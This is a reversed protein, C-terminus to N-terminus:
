EWLSNWFRVLLNDKSLRFMVFWTLVSGVVLGAFMGPLMGEYFGLVGSFLAIYLARARAAELLITVFLLTLVNPLFGWTTMLVTYYDYRDQPGLGWMPGGFEGPSESTPVYVVAFTGNVYGNRTLWYFPDLLPNYTASFSITADAFELQDNPFFSLEKLHNLHYGVGGVLGLIAFLFAMLVALACKKM